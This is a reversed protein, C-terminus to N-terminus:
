SGPAFLQAVSYAPSRLLASWPLVRAARNLRVRRDGRRRDSRHRLWGLGALDAQQAASCLVCSAAPRRPQILERAINDGRIINVLPDLTKM